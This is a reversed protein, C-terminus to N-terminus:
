LTKDDFISHIKGLLIHYDLPKKFFGEVKYDNIVHSVEDQNYIGSLIIIPISYHDRIREVINLGHEGPLLLDTIVLDPKKRSIYDLAEIGDGVEGVSFGNETLFDYLTERIIKDDEIVLISKKREM